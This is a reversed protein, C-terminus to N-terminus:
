INRGKNQRVKTVINMKRVWAPFTDYLKQSVFERTGAREASWVALKSQDSEVRVQATAGLGMDLHQRLAITNTEDDM